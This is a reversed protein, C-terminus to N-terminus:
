LGMAGTVTGANEGGVDHCISWCSSVCLDAVFLTFPATDEVAAAEGPRAQITVSYPASDFRLPGALWFPM